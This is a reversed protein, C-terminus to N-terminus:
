NSRSVTSAARCNPSAIPVRRDTFTTRAGGIMSPSSVAVEVGPLIGGSSDLARGTITGTIAQAFAPPALLLPALLVALLFGQRLVRTM